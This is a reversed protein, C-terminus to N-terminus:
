RRSHAASLDALIATLKTADGAALSATFERDANELDKLAKTLLARGSATVLVLHRRRDIPDPARKILGERELKDVITVMDSRDVGIQDAVQSQSASALENVTILASFERPRLKHATLATEAARTAAQGIKSIRFIALEDLREAPDANM